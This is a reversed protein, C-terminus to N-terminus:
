SKLHKCHRFFKHLIKYLEITYRQVVRQIIPPELGLLLQSNKEESDHGSWSETWGGIWHAALARERPYLLLLM